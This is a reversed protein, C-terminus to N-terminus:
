GYWYSFSSDEKWGALARGLDKRVTILDTLRDFFNKMPASMAYWYVPTAFVIISQECLEKALEIFDDNQPVEQYCYPLINKSSLNLVAANLAGALQNVIKATNGDSRASGLVIQAKM